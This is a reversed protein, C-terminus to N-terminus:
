SHVEVAVVLAVGALCLAAPVSWSAAGVLVLVLAGLEVRNM